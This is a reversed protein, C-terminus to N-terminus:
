AMIAEGMNLGLNARRPIDVDPLWEITFLTQEVRRIERHAVALEHQRPYAGFKRLLRSPAMRAFPMNDFVVRCRRSLHRDVLSAPLEKTM